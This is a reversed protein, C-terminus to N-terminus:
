GAPPFVPRATDEYAPVGVSTNVAFFGSAGGAHPSDVLEAGSDLFVRKASRATPFPFKGKGVGWGWAFCFVPFLVCFVWTPPMGVTTQEGM